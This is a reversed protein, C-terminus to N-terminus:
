DNIRPTQFCLYVKYEPFLTELELTYSSRVDKLCFPTNTISDRMRSVLTENLSLQKKPELIGLWSQEDPANKEITGTTASLSEFPSNIVPSLIEENTRHIALSEFYGKPNYRDSNWSDDTWYGATSLTGAVMSTGSRGCGLVILNHM